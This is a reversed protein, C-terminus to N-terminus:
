RRSLIMLHDLSPVARLMASIMNEELGKAYQLAEVFLGVTLFAILSAHARM